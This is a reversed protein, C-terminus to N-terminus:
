AALARTAGILREYLQVHRQAINRWDYQKVGRRAARSMNGVLADDTFLRTMAAALAEPSEPPVLIGTKEPDILDALGPMDTAIM